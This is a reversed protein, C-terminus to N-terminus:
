VKAVKGKEDSSKVYTMKMTYAIVMFSEINSLFNKCGLSFIDRPFLFSFCSMTKAPHLLCLPLVRKRFQHRCIYLLLYVVTLHDRSVFLGLIEYCIKFVKILAFNAIPPIM